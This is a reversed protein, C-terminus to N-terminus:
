CYGLLSVKRAGTARRVARIARGIRAVLEDWELHRDEDGPIGWDLCFVDLGGAVLAAALSAGERLDLVYWRNILSPVLLVPPANSSSRGEDLGAPQFRYLAANGDRLVTSRPTTALEVM